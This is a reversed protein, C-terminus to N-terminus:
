PWCQALACPMMPPHLLPRESGARRLGNDRLTERYLCGCSLRHGNQLSKGSAIVEAGCACLCHWRLHGSSRGPAPGTVLLRGYTEGTRERRV